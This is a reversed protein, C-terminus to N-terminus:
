NKFFVLVFAMLGAIMFRNESGYKTASNEICNGNQWYYGPMCRDCYGNVLLSACNNLTPTPICVGPFAGNWLSFGDSCQRCYQNGTVLDYYCSDCNPDACTPGPICGGGNSLVNGTCASCSTTSIYSYRCFISISPSLPTCTNNFNAANINMYYFDQCDNCKTNSAYSFCGPIIAIPATCVGASNPYGYACYVCTNNRCQLCMSDNPCCSALCFLFAMLVFSTTKSESRM